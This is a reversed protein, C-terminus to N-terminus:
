VAVLRPQEKEPKKEFSAAVRRATLEALMAVDDLNVEKLHGFQAGVHAKVSFGCETARLCFDLDEGRLIQGNPKYTTRFIPPAWAEDETEETLDHPNGDLGIYSQPLRMRPDEIVKRRILMTATGAAVVDVVSDDIKPIIPNFKYDGLQNYQFLCLKLGPAKSGNQHDFAWARGAVIDADVALLELSSETPIMDEDLFWIAEADTKTLFVGTLWNRAYEVPRRGNAVQWSFKYPFDALLSLRDVTALFQFIAITARNSMTPVAIFIERKTPAVEVPRGM